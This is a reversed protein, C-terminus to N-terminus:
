NNLYYKYGSFYITNNTLITFNWAGSGIGSKITRILNGTRFDYINWYSADKATLIKDSCFDINYFYSGINMSRVISHDISSRVNLWPDTFIYFYDDDGPLFDYDKSLVVPNRQSGSRLTLASGDISYIKLSDASLVSVYRGNPSIKNIIGAMTRSAVLQKNIMDYVFLVNASNFVCLGNDSVDVTVASNYLLAINKINVSNILAESNLDYLKLVSDGAALLYKANPSVSASSTIASLLTVQGSTTSYRYLQNRGLSSEYKTFFFGSCTIGFPSLFDPGPLALSVNNLYSCFPSTNQPLDNKPVCYLYYSSREAFYDPTPNVIFSTDGASVTALKTAPIQSGYKYLQYEAINNNFLTKNWTVAIKNETELLKLVPLSKSIACRGWERESDIANLVSIRYNVEEGVYNSIMFTNGSINYEINRFYEHLRYGEPSLGDYDPWSLKLGEESLTYSLNNQIDVNKAIFVWDRSEYFFGESNLRDAISNTGSSTIIQLKFRYTGPKSFNINAIYEHNNFMSYIEKNDLLFKVAFIKNEGADVKVKINSEWYFYVTDTYINLDIEVPTPVAPEELDIFNKGSPEFECSVLFLMIFVVVKYHDRILHSYFVSMSLPRHRCKILSLSNVKVRLIYNNIM